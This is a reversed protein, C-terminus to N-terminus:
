LLSGLVTVAIEERDARVAIVHGGHRLACVGGLSLGSGTSPGRPHAGVQCGSGRGRCARGGGSAVAAPGAASMAHAVAWRVARRWPAPREMPAPRIEAGGRRSM